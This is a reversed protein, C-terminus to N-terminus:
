QYNENEAVPKPDKPPEVGASRMVQHLAAITEASPKFNGPRYGEAILLPTWGYRNKRNWIEIDAGHDALWQVVGPFSKYAAGHMATEGNQDVANVDGGLELIFELTELAEPETGAHEPPALAGLGAAAMLPTSGDANPLMPDAGLEVLLRLLPADATQAAMLFPTAGTLNLVGRGSRGKKLQANVDAGHDVLARVFQLSTVEGSGAPPPDGDPDEGSNPKRIWTIRHLPTFGSRQDNPDAGAEILRLALEFHGNEIALSLASMGKEPSRNFSSKPQMAEDVDVGAQLLRQVVEAHGGRVAFFLPTFGSKLPTRFDAGAELLADVVEVHGEAAAWMCAAQGNQEKADVDAGSALLAQVPGLKGTRAATMLVTEGGPLAANPDAGATLLSEVIASDGNLCALSLPTVGYRNEATVDAGAHLLLEVTDPENRYVAWHLATMGDAQAANIDAGQQMIAGVAARDGKEAAAALRAEAAAAIANPIVCLLLLLGYAIVQKHSMEM